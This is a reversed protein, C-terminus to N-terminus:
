SPIDCDTVWFVKYKTDAGISGPANVTVKVHYGQQPHPSYGALASSLDYTRSADLDTGGGAPDEGIFVTDGLIVDRGTPPQVAFTVGASFAGGTAEDFGYFDLQFTCGVHPENDPADDFALGDIKITGNNGPPDAAAAPVLMFPLLAAAPLVALSRRLGPRHDTM